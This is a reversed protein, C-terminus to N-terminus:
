NENSIIKAIAEEYEEKTIGTGDLLTDLKRNLENKRAKVEKEEDPTLERDLFYENLNLVEELEVLLAKERELIDACKEILLMKKKAEEYEEKTIGTGDLLTNLEISIRNLSAKIARVEEGAITPKGSEAEEAIISDLDHWYSILQEELEVRERILEYERIYAMGMATNKEPDDSFKFYEFYEDNIVIGM